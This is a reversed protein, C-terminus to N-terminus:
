ITLLVSAIAASMLNSLTGVLLAKLGLKATEKKRAPILSGVGGMMIALGTFNAFGCLAFTIVAQTHPSFSDKTATFNVYAVFENLITKQGVINGAALAEDWPIGLLFMLPSFIIGLLYEFTLAEWGILSGISSLLGNALALLAVFAILMAAVSAAIRMGTLAGDTAAEILNSASHEPDFSSTSFDPAPAETHDPDDPILLKAMLLGGPAAMFAAALLYNLDVGLSAYGVLIAGSVSALGGGLVAFFQARSLQPLFPRAILPSEIMGVFVNAAACLAEVHSVGILWRLGGGIGRVIWQMIRLYYLVAILSSIFIIVPLVRIAVILGFRDSSLDGFVFSIGTDAYAILSRVADAVGALVDKGFPVHIVFVAILVQLVFARAVISYRIAKRNESLLIAASILFIIGLIGTM